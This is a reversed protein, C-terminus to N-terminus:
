MNIVGIRVLNDCNNLLDEPTVFYAEKIKLFSLGPSISLDGALENSKEWIVSRPNEEANEALYAAQGFDYVAVALEDDIEDTAGVENSQPVNPQLAELLEQALEEDSQSPINQIDLAVGTQKPAELALSNDQVRSIIQEVLNMSNENALWLDERKSKMTNLHYSEGADEYCQFVFQSCVMPLKGPSKHQNMYDILQSALLKYIKIMVRKTLINPTFKKYLLIMGLLYLNNFAYPQSENLYMTAANIVPAPIFHQSNFRNVYIKRGQCRKDSNLKYTQVRPPTEEIIEGLDRYLAAHTVESNTLFMIATSIWDKEEANKKLGSFLLIDAPQLQDIDLNMMPQNEGCKSM